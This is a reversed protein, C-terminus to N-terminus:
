GCMSPIRTTIAVYICEPERQFCSYMAYVELFCSQLAINIMAPGWKLCATCKILSRTDTLTM